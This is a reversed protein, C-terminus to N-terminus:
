LSICRMGSNWLRVMFLPYHDMQHHYYSLTYISEIMVLSIPLRFVCLGMNQIFSVQSFIGIQLNLTRRYTKVIIIILHHLACVFPYSRDALVYPVIKMWCLSHLLLSFLIGTNGSHINFLHCFIIYCDGWACLRPLIYCHVLNISGIQGHHYCSSYIYGKLWSFQFPGTSCM